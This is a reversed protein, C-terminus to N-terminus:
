EATASSIAPTGYICTDDCLALARGCALKDLHRKEMFDSFEQWKAVMDRIEKTSLHDEEEVEEERSLEQLVGLHQMEQLEILEQTTLEEQHEEVLDNVDAEDVELWMSKGLSVIEDVVIPKPEDLDATNFGKFDSETVSALWLKKWASNLTRRTIGLWANDIIKLCHVISFHEKLLERLTLNTNDTVHFCKKFLHKTYLKKFNSIVQDIPQLLPLTNPPFHFVKIFRYEDLIDEKLGPPHGPANDLVLLCEMPMSKEALYKKVALDFCLNVWETFFHRMVWAKANTRWMVQLKEKM